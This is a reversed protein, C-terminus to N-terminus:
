KQEVLRVLVEISKIKKGPIQKKIEISNVDNKSLDILQNKVEDFFHHHNSINTDYYSQNSNIIIEKLYGKLKLAHVTNYITALSIKQKIENEMLQALESITFHFTNNRNFLLECIKVRQRTPRLGSERLKVVFEGSISM